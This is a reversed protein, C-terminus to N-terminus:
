VRVRTCVCVCVCAASHACTDMSLVDGLAEVGDLMSLPLQLTVGGGTVPETADDATLPRGGSGGGGGGGGGLDTCAFPNADAWAAAAM